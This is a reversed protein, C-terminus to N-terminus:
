QDGHKEVRRTALDGLEQSISPRCDVLVTNIEAFDPYETLLHRRWRHIQRKQSLDNCSYLIKVIRVGEM